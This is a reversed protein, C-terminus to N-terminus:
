KREGKYCGRNFELGFERLPCQVHICDACTIADSESNYTTNKSEGQESARELKEQKKKAMGILEEYNTNEAVCMPKMEEYLFGKVTHQKLDHSPM